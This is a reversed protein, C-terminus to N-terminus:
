GIVKRSKGGRAKIAEEVANSLPSDKTSILVTSARALDVNRRVNELCVLQENRLVGKMSETIEPWTQTHIPFHVYTPLYSSSSSPHHYEHHHDHSVAEEGPLLGEVILDDLDKMLQDM